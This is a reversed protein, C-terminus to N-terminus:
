SPIPCIRDVMSVFNVEEAIEADVKRDVMSVFDVVEAIEADVKRDVM